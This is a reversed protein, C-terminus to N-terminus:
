SPAQEIHRRQLKREQPVFKGCHQRTIPETALNRLFDFFPKLELQACRDGWQYRDIQMEKERIEDGNSTADPSITVVKVNEGELGDNDAYWTQPDRDINSIQLTMSALDNQASVRKDPLELDYANYSNGSWDIDASYNTLYHTGNTPDSLEILWVKRGAVSFTEDRAAQSLSVAM